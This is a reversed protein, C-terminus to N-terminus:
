RYIAKIIRPAVYRKWGLTREASATNARKEDALRLMSREASQPKEKM